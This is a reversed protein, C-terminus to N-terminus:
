RPFTVFGIALAGVLVLLATGFIIAGTSARAVGAEIARRARRYQAAGALAVLIGGGALPSVTRAPQPQCACHFLRPSHLRLAGFLSRVVLTHAGKHARPQGCHPCTAQQM